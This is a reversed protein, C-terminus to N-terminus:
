FSQEFCNLFITMLKSFLYTVVHINQPMISLKAEKKLQAVTSRDESYIVAGQETQKLHPARSDIDITPSMMAEKTTKKHEPKLDGNLGKNQKM